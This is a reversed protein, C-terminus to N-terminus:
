KFIPTLEIDHKKYREKIEEFSIKSLDSHIDHNFETIEEGFWDPPTFNKMETETKFEVEGRVYGLLKNQYFDIECEYNGVPYLYRIKKHVSITQKIIRDYEEKKIYIVHELRKFATDGEKKILQYKEGLKRIKLVDVINPDSFEGIEIEIPKYSNLDKPLNKLLFVRELEVNQM